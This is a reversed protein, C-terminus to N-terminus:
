PAAPRPSQGAPAPRGIATAIRDLFVRITAAAVREVTARDEVLGQDGPPPRYVGTLALTTTRGGAPILTIDADLAPFREGGPTIVEWRLALHALDHRAAQDRTHVTVLGCMCWASGPASSWALSAGAGYADQSASLLWGARVLDGLRVRADAAAIQLDAEGSVFM